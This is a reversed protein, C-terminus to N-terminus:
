NKELTTPDSGPLRSVEGEGASSPPAFAIEAGQSLEFVVGTVIEAIKAMGEYNIKDAHDSNRHYDDHLGTFFFLVPVNKRYYSAHDSRATVSREYVVQIDSPVYKRLMSMWQPATAVAGISLGQAGLRGVMDLNVMAVVKGSEFPPADALMRSGHLGLEEGSFHAFVL